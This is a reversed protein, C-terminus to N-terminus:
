KKGRKILKTIREKMADTPETLGNAWNFATRETVGIKGAFINRQFPSLSIVHAKWEPIDGPGEAKQM